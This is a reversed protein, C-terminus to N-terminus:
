GAPKVRKVRNRPPYPEGTAPDIQTSEEISVAIAATHGLLDEAGIEGRYDKPFGVALLTQKVRWLAKEHWVLTDFVIRGEHEGEEVKWQIDIKANGSQSEGEEANTITALYQGTPIPDFSSQVEDFNISPM